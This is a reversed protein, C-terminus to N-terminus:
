PVRKSPHLPLISHLCGLWVIFIAEKVDLCIRVWVIFIYHYVSAQIKSYKLVFHVDVSAQLILLNPGECLLNLCFKRLCSHKRVVCRWIVSYTQWIALINLYTRIFYHFFYCIWNECTKQQNFVAYWCKPLKHWYLCPSIQPAHDHIHNQCMMCSSSLSHMCILGNNM